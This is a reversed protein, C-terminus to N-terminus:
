RFDRSPSTPMEWPLHSMREAVVNVVGEARELRGSVLLASSGRAVRRWRVWAGSSCIVNVLGTEDELNLFVTGGATSPRQRHTVVGAVVVRAGPDARALDCARSVGRAELSKRAFSVPHASPAVGSAWLDAATEEMPTMPVLSPPRAGTVIGSLRGPGAGALAGAAWIAERRRLPGEGSTPVLGDLAGATGLAELQLRSLRVRRVLEEMSAYPANAAILEGLEKGLGRVSSIGLRLAPRLPPHGGLPTGPSELTALPEGRELSAGSLSANVHARRVEVGHRRADAVLSHPPWFGMPQANLLGGLFAAPHRLKFWASAYVLYAFSVSHSEPFGFSAFAALKGWIADAVEGTIGRAAMGEYLRRRLADMREGSRKAGMAQRLQDAEAASFGAVDIAMQM